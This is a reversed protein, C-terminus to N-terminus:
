LVTLAPNKGCLVIGTLFNSYKYEYCPKQHFEEGKNKHLFRLESQARVTARVSSQSLESQLTTTLESPLARKRALGVVKSVHGCVCIMLVSERARLLLLKQAGHGYYMYWPWLVHVVAMTCTTHGYHM